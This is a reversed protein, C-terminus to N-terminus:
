REMWLGRSRTPPPAQSTPSLSITATRIMSVDIKATEHAKLTMVSGSGLEIVPPNNRGTVFSLVDSAEGYSRAYSYGVVKVYYTTSFDLDSIDM